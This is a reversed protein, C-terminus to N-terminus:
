QSPRSVVVTYLLGEVSMQLTIRLSIICVLHHPFFQSAEFLFNFWFVSM